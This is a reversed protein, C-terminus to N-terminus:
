DAEGTTPKGGTGPVILIESYDPKTFMSIPLRNDVVMKMVEM